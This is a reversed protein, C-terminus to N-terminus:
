DTGDIMERTVRRLLAQDVKWTPSLGGSLRWHRFLGDAPPVYALRHGRLRAIASIQNNPFNLAVVRTGPPSFLTGYLAYGHEAVVVEAGAFLKIQQDPPLGNLRVVTFGLERMTQETEAANELRSDGFNAEALYILKRREAEIVPHRLLVEHLMLNMAPHFNYETHLMAPLVISPACIRENAGDYWYIDREAHFLRAFFKMWAPVTHSLALPIDAGYLRLVSLLWLRPLVELLAHGYALNPHTAVAVPGDLAVTKVDARGIAGGLMPHLPPGGLRFNDQFYGPVCDPMAIFQTGLTVLGTSWLVGGGVAYASVGHPTPYHYHEAVFAAPMGAENHLKRQPPPLAPQLLPFREHAGSRGFRATHNVVEFIPEVMGGFGSTPAAAATSAAASTAVQRVAPAAVAAVAVAVAVGVPAAVLTAVTAAGAVPAPAAGPLSRPPLRLTARIAAELAEPAIDYDSNWSPEPNAETPHHTGVLYGYDLGRRSAVSWFTPEICYPNFLQLVRTAERCFLINTTGAGHEAIVHRAAQMTAVQEAFDMDEFSVPVFGYRALLPQLAAFNGVNRASAPTRHIYVKDPRAAAGAEAKALRAIVADAAAAVFNPVMWIDFSPLLIAQAFCTAENPAVTLVAEPGIGLVELTRQQTSGPPLPPLVLKIDKFRRRLLTFAYLKPVCQLLWHGYNRWAGNFGIAYRGSDYTRSVPLPRRLKLYGTERVEAVNSDPQWSGIQLLSNRVVGSDLVVVGDNGLLHVDAFEYAILADHRYQRFGPRLMHEGYPGIGPDPQEPYFLPVRDLDAADDLPFFDLYRRDAALEAINRGVAPELDIQSLRTM